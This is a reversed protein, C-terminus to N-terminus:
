IGMKFGFPLRFVIEGDGLGSDVFAIGPEFFLYNGKGMYKELGLGGGIAVADISGVSSYGFTFSVYRFLDAVNTYYLVDFTTPSNLGLAKNISIGEMDGFVIEALNVRLGFQKKVNVTLDAGIGFSVGGDLYLSGKPCFELTSRASLPLVVLLVAFLVFVKKM